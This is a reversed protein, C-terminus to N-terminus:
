HETDPPRDSGAGGWSVRFGVVSWRGEDEDLALRLARWGILTRHPNHDHEWHGNPQQSSALLNAARRIAAALREDGLGARHAGLLAELIYFTDMEPWSGDARQRLLIRTLADDAARRHEEADLPGEALAVLIAPLAELPLLSGLERPDLALLHRLGELHLWTDTGRDGARVLARLAICSGALRAANGAPIVAGNRLSIEGDHGLGFFPPLAHHCLGLRHQEPTCGDGFRGPAGRADRLEAIVRRAGPGPERGPALALLEHYLLLAEATGVLDRVEGDDFWADLRDLHTAVLGADALEPAGAEARALIAEVDDGHLFNEELRDLARAIAPRGPEIGM